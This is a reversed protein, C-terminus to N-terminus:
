AFSANAPLLCIAWVGESFENMQTINSVDTDDKTIHYSNGSDGIWTNKKFLNFTEGDITCLMGAETPKKVNEMIWVKFTNGFTNM